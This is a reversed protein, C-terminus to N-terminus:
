DTMLKASRGINYITGAVFDKAPLTATYELGNKDVIVARLSNGNSNLSVPLITMYVELYESKVDTITADKLTLLMSSSNATAMVEGTTLDLTAASTFQGDTILALSSIEVGQVSEPMKFVLHLIGVLHSFDFSVNGDADVASNRAIMYDYAAIHGSNNNGTQTQGKLLLPIAKKDLNFQGILPYYASYTYDSRLGWGGGDFTANKSGAGNIMPFAVQGGMNPFIGITDNESWVLQLSNDAAPVIATRTEEDMTFDPVNMKLQRIYAIDAEHDSNSSCSVLILISLFLFSLFYCSKKM